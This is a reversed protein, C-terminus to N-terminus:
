KFDKGRGLVSPPFPYDDPIKVNRIDQAFGDPYIPCIPMFSVLLIFYSGEPVTYKMGLKDFAQMLIERREIYEARQIDFFRNEAAQELGSATAEQFPSNSCFVIRTSAALTPQIISAPGILWGVRWGTAAFNESGILRPDRAYMLRVELLIFRFLEIGCVPFHPLAYINRAM